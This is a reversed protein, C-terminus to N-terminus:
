EPVETVRIVNYNLHMEQAVGIAGPASAARVMALKTMDSTRPADAKRRLQAQWEPTGPPGPVGKVRDAFNGPPSGM